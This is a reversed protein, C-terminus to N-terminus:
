LIPHLPCLLLPTLCFVEGVTSTLRMTDCRTALTLADSAQTAAATTVATVDLLGENLTDCLQHQTALATNVTAQHTLCDVYRNHQLKWQQQSETCLSELQASLEAYMRSGPLPM